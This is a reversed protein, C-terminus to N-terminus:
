CRRHEDKVAALPTSSSYITGIEHLRTCHAEEPVSGGAGPALEAFGGCTQWVERARGSRHASCGGLRGRPARPRGHRDLAGSKRGTSVEGEGTSAGICGREEKSHARGAGGPEGRVCPIRSWPTLQGGPHKHRRSGSRCRALLPSRGNRACGKCVKGGQRAWMRGQVRRGAARSRIYSGRHATGLIRQMTTANEALLGAMATAKHQLTCIPALSRTHRTMQTRTSHTDNKRRAPALRQTCQGRENTLQHTIKPEIM